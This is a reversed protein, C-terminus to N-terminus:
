KTYPFGFWSHAIHAGGATKLHYHYYYIHGPQRDSDIEAVSTFTYVTGQTAAQVVALADSSLFTYVNIKTRLYGAAISRSVPNIFDILVDKDGSLLYAKFYKPMNNDRNRVADIIVSVYDYKVGNIYRCASVLTIAVVVMALLSMVSVTIVARTQPGEVIAELQEMSSISIVLSNDTVEETGYMQIGSDKDTEYVDFEVDESSLNEIDLTFTELQNGNEISATATGDPAFCLESIKGGNETYIISSSDAYVVLTYIQGDYEATQTYVPSNPSASSNAAVGPVAMSIMLSLVLVVSIIKRKM